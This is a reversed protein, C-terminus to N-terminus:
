KCHALRTRGGAGDFILPNRLGNAWQQSIYVEPAEQQSPAFVSVLGFEVGV